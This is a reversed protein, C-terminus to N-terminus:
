FSGRALLRAWNALTARFFAWRDRIIVTSRRGSSRKASFACRTMDPVKFDRLARNSFVLVLKGSFLWKIPRKLNISRVLPVREHNPWIIARM